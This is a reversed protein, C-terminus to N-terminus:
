LSDNIHFDDLIDENRVELPDMNIPTHMFAFYFGILQISIGILIFISADIDYYIALFAGIILLNGGYYCFKAKNNELMPNKINSVLHKAYLQLLLHVVGTIILLPFAYNFHIPTDFGLMLNLIYVSSLISIFHSINSVHMLAYAQRFKSDLAM